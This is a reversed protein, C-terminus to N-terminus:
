KEAASTDLVSLHEHVCLWTGHRYELVISEREDLTQTTGQLELTTEVDHSFIAVRGFVQLRRNTSTCGHVRFGATQEWETWLDEYDARSELRHPTSHFLFTADTAFGDFYARTQHRSFNDIIADVAALAAAEAQANAAPTVVNM